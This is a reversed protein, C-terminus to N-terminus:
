VLFPLLIDLAYYLNGFTPDLLLQSSSESQVHSVQRLPDLYSRPRSLWLTMISEELLLLYRDLTIFSFLTLLNCDVAVWWERPLTTQLLTAWCTKALSPTLTTNLAWFPTDLLPDKFPSETCIIM